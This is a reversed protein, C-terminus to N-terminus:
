TEERSLAIQCSGRTRIKQCATQYAGMDGAVIQACVSGMIWAMPMLLRGSAGYFFGLDIIDILINKWRGRPAAVLILDGAAPFSTANEIRSARSM